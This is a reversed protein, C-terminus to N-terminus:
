KNIMWDICRAIVDGHCDEPKCWCTLIVLAGKIVKRSINILEDWVANIKGSMGEQIKNWLWRRYKQIVEARTGDRGITYPNALPSQQLNYTKNSRGIYIKNVGVFGDQKGNIVSVAM